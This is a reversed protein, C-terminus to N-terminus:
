SSLTTQTGFRLILIKSLIITAESDSNCTFQSLESKNRGLEENNQFVHFFQYIILYYRCNIGLSSQSSFIYSNETAHDNSFYLTQM